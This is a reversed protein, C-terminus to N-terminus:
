PDRAAGGASAEVVRRFKASHEGDVLTLTDGDV